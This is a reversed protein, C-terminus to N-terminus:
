SQVVYGGVYTNLGTCIFFILASKSTLAPAAGGSGTLWTIGSPWTISASTAATAVVAILQGLSANAFAVTCTGGYPTWTVIGGVSWDFTSTGSSAPTAVANIAANALGPTAVWNKGTGVASYGLVPNDDAPASVTTGQVAASTITNSLIM